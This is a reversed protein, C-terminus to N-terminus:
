KGENKVGNPNESFFQELILRASDSDISGSYEPDGELVASTYREDVFSMPLHFHSKLQNGFRRAAKTMPHEAGDPHLPLGVVLHDPRWQEFLQTIAHIRWQVNKNEIVKLAQTTQTLSNGVAVGIRVAGYDFAILTIPIVEPMDRKVLFVPM